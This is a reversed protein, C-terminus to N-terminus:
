GSVILGFIFFSYGLTIWRSYQEHSEVMDEKNANWEVADLLIITRHLKPIPYLTPPLGIFAILVQTITAPTIPPKDDINMQITPPIIHSMLYKLFGWNTIDSLGSTFLHVNECLVVHFKAYKNTRLLFPNALKHSALTITVSCGGAMWSGVSNISPPYANM